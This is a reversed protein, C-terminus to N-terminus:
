KMKTRYAAIDSVNIWAAIASASGTILAQDAHHFLGRIDRGNLLGPKIVTNIVHQMAGDRWQMAHARLLQADGRQHFPNLAATQIFHDDRGIWRDFAFGGRNM